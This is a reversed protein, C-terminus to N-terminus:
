RGNGSNIAAGLAMLPRYRRKELLVGGHAVVPITAATRKRGRMHIAKVAGRPRHEVTTREVVTGADPLDAVGLMEKKM